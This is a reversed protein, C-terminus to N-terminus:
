HADISINAAHITAFAGTNCPRMRINLCVSRPASPRVFEKGMGIYLLRSPPLPVLTRPALVASVPSYSTMDIKESM